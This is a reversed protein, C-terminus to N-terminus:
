PFSHPAIRRSAAAWTITSATSTRCAPYTGTSVRVIEDRALEPRLANPGPDDRGVPEMPVHVIVEHGGDHCEEAPLHPRRMPIPLFSLTVGAPLRIARRTGATDAGLDDIVIAIAPLAPM